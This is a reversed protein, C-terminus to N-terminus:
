RNSFFFGYNECPCFKGYYALLIKLLLLLLVNMPRLATLPIAIYDIEKSVVGFWGLEGMKGERGGATRKMALPLQQALLIRSRM